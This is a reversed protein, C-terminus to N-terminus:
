PDERVTVSMGLRLTRGPELHFLGPLEAFDGAVDPTFPLGLWPEICLFDGPPKMWLALRPLEPFAVDLSVGGAVSGFVVRRSRQGTLLIAGDAFLAESLMLRHGDLHLPPLEPGLFSRAGRRAELGTDDPFLVYHGAKGAGPQLPWAFGPHFGFNFPLDRTDLNGIDAEIALAPGVLRYRLTLRFDFPYVQRSAEDAELMLEVGGDDQRVVEFAAHRAFGHQGMSYTRGDVRLQGDPVPGVLPFLIPSHSGWIAPDAQWILEAGAETKLSVLEAGRPAISASLARSTITIPSRSM